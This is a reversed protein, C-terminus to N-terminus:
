FGEQLVVLGSAGDSVFARGADLLVANPRTGAGGCGGSSGNYVEHAVLRGGRELDGLLAGSMDLVRVGEAGWAAYLFDRSRDLTLDVPRWATFGPTHGTLTALLVLSDPDNADYVRIQGDPLNADIAPAFLRKTEADYLPPGGFRIGEPGSHDGLLAPAEPAGGQGGGGVDFIELGNASEVVAIGGDVSIGTISRDGGAEAFVVSPSAPDSADLVDLGGDSRTVYVLDGSIAPSSAGGELSESITSLLRPRGPDSVDVFAVGGGTGRDNAALTLVLFAGERSQAMGSVGEVDLVLSDVLAPSAPDSVDFVLLDSAYADSATDFRESNVYVYRGSGAIGGFFRDDCIRAQGLLSLDGAVGRPEVSIVQEEILSGVRGRFTLEGPEYAVALQREPAQFAADEPLFDLHVIVEDEVEGSSDRPVAGFSFVEGQRMSAPAEVELVPPQPVRFHVQTRKQLGSPSLATVSFVFGGPDFTADGRDLTLHLVVSDGAFFRPTSTPQMTVAWRSTGSGEEPGADSVFLNLADLPTSGTNKLVLDFERREGFDPDEPIFSLERIEQVELTLEADSVQRDDLRLNVDTRYIGSATGPEVVLTVTVPVSGDPPIEEVLEPDVAVSISPIVASGQRVPEAEIRINHATETGRNVVHLTTSRGTGLEVASPAIIVRSRFASIPEDGCAGVALALLALTSARRVSHTSM